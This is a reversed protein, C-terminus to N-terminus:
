QAGGPSPAGEPSQTGQRALRREIRGVRERLVALEHRILRLRRELALGGTESTRRSPQAGRLIMALHAPPWGLAASVAALTQPRRRRPHSNLQLERLTTLSIGARAAVEIQTAPLGTMRDSIARAVAPWDETVDAEPRRM